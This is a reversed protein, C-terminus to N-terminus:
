NNRIYVIFENLFLFLFFCVFWISSIKINENAAVKNKTHTDFSYVVVVVVVFELKPSACSCSIETTDQFSEMNFIQILNNNYNNRLFIM